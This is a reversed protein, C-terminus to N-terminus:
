GPLEAIGPGYDRAAAIVRGLERPFLDVFTEVLPRVGVFQMEGKWVNVFQPLEGLEYKRLQHGVRTVRADHAAMLLSGGKYDPFMSRFQVDGELENALQARWATAQKGRSNGKGAAMACCMGAIKVISSALRKAVFHTM